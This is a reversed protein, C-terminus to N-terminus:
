ATLLTAAVSAGQMTLQTLAVTPASNVAVTTTGIPTTGTTTGQLTAVTALNNALQAVIIDFTALVPYASATGGFVETNGQGTLASTSGGASNATDIAIGVVFASSFQSVGTQYTNSGFSSTSYPSGVFYIEAYQQITRVAVSFYSNADQWPVVSGTSVTVNSNVYPSSGSYATQQAFAVGPGFVSSASINDADQSQTGAAAMLDPANAGSVVVKVFALNRTGFNSYTIGGYTDQSTMRGYNAAVYTGLLSPM